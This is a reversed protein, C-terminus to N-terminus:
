AADSYAPHAKIADRLDDCDSWKLAVNKKTLMKHTEIVRFAEDYIAMALADARIRTGNHKLFLSEALYAAVEDNQMTVKLDKVDVMAHVSEHFIAARGIPSKVIDASGIRMRGILKKEGPDWRRSKFSSYSAALLAGSSGTDVAINQSEIAKAVSEMHLKDVAVTGVKFSIRGVPAERLVTAVNSELSM